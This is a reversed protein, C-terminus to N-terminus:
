PFNLLHANNEGPGEDAIIENEDVKMRWLGLIDDTWGPHYHRTLKDPHEAKFQMIESVYYKKWIRWEYIRGHWLNGVNTNAGDYDAGILINSNQFDPGGTLIGKMFVQSDLYLEWQGSASAYTFAAFHIEGDDAHFPAAKIDVLQDQLFFAWTDDEDPDLYLGLTNEGRDNSIMFLSYLENSMARDAVFWGEITFDGTSLASFGIQFPIEIYTSGSLYVYPRSTGSPPDTCAAFITMFASILIFKFPVKYVRLRSCLKEPYPSLPFSIARM